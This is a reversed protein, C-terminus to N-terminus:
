AERSKKIKRRTTRKSGTARIRESRVGVVKGKLQKGICSSIGGYRKLHDMGLCSLHFYISLMTSGRISHSFSSNRVFLLDRIM